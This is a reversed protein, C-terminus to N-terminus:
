DCSDLPWSRNFKDMLAQPPPQAVNSAIIAIPPVFENYTNDDGSLWGPRCFSM